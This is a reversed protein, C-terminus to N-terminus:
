ILGRYLDLWDPDASEILELKWARRWRKTSHERAVAAAMLEHPEYWVLLNCRHELTFGPLVRERHEWARRVLDNTSGVYLVGCPRSAMIYTAVFAFRSPM